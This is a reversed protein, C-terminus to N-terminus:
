KKGSGKEVVLCDCVAPPAAGYRGGTRVNLWHGASCPEGAVALYGRCNPDVMEYEPVSPLTSPVSRVSSVIVWAAVCFVSLAVGFGVGHGFGTSRESIM